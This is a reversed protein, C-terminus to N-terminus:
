IAYYEPISTMLGVLARVRAIRANEDERFAQANPKDEILIAFDVLDKRITTPLEGQFLIETLRDVVEAPEALSTPM